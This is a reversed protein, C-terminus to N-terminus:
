FLLFYYASCCYVISFLFLSYHIGIKYSFALNIDDEPNRYCEKEKEIRDGMPRFYAPLGMILPLTCNYSSLPNYIFEMYM